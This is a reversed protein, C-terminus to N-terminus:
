NKWIQLESLAVYKSTSPDSTLDGAASQTFGLRIYRYATGASIPIQVWKASAVSTDTPGALVTWTSGDNSGGVVYQRPLQASSNRTLFKITFDKLENGSGLDVQAYIGYTADLVPTDVYDSHWHSSSKDVLADAGLNDGSYNNNEGTSSVSVKGSLDVMGLTKNAVYSGFYFDYSALANDYNNGIYPNWVVLDHYTGTSYGDSNFAFKLYSLAGQETGLNHNHSNADVYFTQDKVNYFDAGTKGGYAISDGYLGYVPNGNSFKSFDYGYTSFTNQSVDYCFGAFETIMINGKTPDNSTALTITNDGHIDLDGLASGYSGVSPDRAYQAVIAAEDAATLIYVTSCYNQKATSGSFTQSVLYYTGSNSVNSLNIDKTEGDAFTVVSDDAGAILTLGADESVALVTKVSTADKTIDVTATPAVSTGGVTISASFDEAPLSIKASVETIKNRTITVSSPATATVLINDSSDLLKIKFGSNLTGVPVPFYFPLETNLATWDTYCADLINESATASTTMAIYADDGSGTMTFTGNLKQGDSFLQVKALRSDINSVTVKLIGTATHFAYSDGSDKFGIMPVIQLPNSVTSKFSNYVIVNSARESATGSNVAQLSGVNWTKNPEPCNSNGPFPYFAYEGLGWTESDLSGSSQFSATSGGSGTNNYFVWRDRTSDSKKILQMSLCENGVWSFTKEGAYSTKTIDDGVIYAKITIGENEVPTTNSEIEKSCSVLMVAVVGVFSLINKKMEIEILTLFDM